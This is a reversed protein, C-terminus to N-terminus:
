RPKGTPLAKRRSVFQIVNGKAGCGFCHFVRKDRNVRFSPKKEEHFPCLGIHEKGSVTLPVGYSEVVTVIDPSAKIADFDVRM